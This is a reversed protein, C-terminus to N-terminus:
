YDARTRVERIAARGGRQAADRWHVPVHADVWERVVDAIEDLTSNADLPLLM